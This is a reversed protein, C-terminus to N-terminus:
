KNRHKPQRQYARPNKHTGSGRAVKQAAHAVPNRPKAAQKKPEELVRYRSRGVNDLVKLAAKIDHDLAAIELARFNDRGISTGPTVRIFNYLTDIWLKAARSDKMGLNLLPRVTKSILDPLSTAQVNPFVRRLGDYIQQGDIAEYVEEIYEDIVRSNSVQESTQEVGFDRDFRAGASVPNKMQTYFPELDPGVSDEPGETPTGTYNQTPYDRPQNLLDRLQGEKSNYQEWDYSTDVGQLSEESVPDATKKLQSRLAAASSAALGSVRRDIINKAIDGYEGGIQKSLGKIDSRARQQYNKLTKPSLEALNQEVFQANPGALDGANPNGAVDVPDPDMLQVVNKPLSHGARYEFLDDLIM